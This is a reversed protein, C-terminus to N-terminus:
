RVSIGREPPIGFGEEVQRRKPDMFFYGRLMPGDVNWKTKARMNDFMDELQSQPIM